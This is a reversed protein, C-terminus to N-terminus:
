KLGCKTIIETVFNASFYVVVLNKGLFSTKLLSFYPNKSLLPHSSAINRINRTM